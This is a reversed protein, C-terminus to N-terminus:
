GTPEPQVATRSSGAEREPKRVDMRMFDRVNLFGPPRAADAPMARWAEEEPVLRPSELVVDKGDIRLTATGAAMVNQVWDSKPGYVLIFMYGDDVPHVELPTEYTKGSSRGVHILVPRVGRRLELRNFTRKNIHGWWLPMPM